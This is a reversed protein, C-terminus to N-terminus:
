QDRRDRAGVVGRADLTLAGLGDDDAWAVSACDCLNPGRRAQGHEQCQGAMEAGRVRVGVGAEEVDALIELREGAQHHLEALRVLESEPDVM